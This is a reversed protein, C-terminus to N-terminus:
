NDPTYCAPCFLRNCLTNENLAELYYHKLNEDFTLPTELDKIDVNPFKNWLDPLNCYPLKQTQAIRSYPVVFDNSNRLQLLNKGILRNATM